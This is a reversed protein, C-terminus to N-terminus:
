DGDTFTGNMHTTQAQCWLSSVHRSLLRQDTPMMPYSAPPYLVLRVYLPITILIAPVLLAFVCLRVVRRPGRLLPGAKGGPRLPAFDRNLSIISPPRSSPFSPQDSTSALYTTVRKDDGM